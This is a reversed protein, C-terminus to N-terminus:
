KGRPNGRPTCEDCIYKYKRTEEDRLLFRPHVDYWQGCGGSCQIDVFEFKDPRQTIENDGWLKRDLASDAKCGNRERMSEFKNVNSLQVTESRAMAGKKSGMSKRFNEETDRKVRPGSRGRGRGSNRSVSRRSEREEREIELDLEEISQEPEEEPEPNKRPRGRKKKPKNELEPDPNKRPRGRKRKVPEEKIVEETEQETEQENDLSELLNALAKREEPSLERLQTILNSM